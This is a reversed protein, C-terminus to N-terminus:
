YDDRRNIIIGRPSGQVVERTASNNSHKAHPSIPLLKVTGFSPSIFALFRHGFYFLKLLLLLLALPRSGISKCHVIFTTADKSNYFSDFQILKDIYYSNGRGDLGKM